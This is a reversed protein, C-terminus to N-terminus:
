AIGVVDVCALIDNAFEGSRLGVISEEPLAIHVHRLLRGEEARVEPSGKAGEVRGQVKGHVVIQSRIAPLCLLICGRVQPLKRSCWRALVIMASSNHQGSISRM